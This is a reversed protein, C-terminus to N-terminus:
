CAIKESPVHRASEFFSLIRDMTDQRMQPTEMLVEHEGNEVMVLEGGPWSAMRAQIRKPDVIRENTGLFTLCPLNPAPKRSLELTDKLAEHVWNLSPGGLSLEPHAIVHDQMFTYMDVDNTLTNGEFPEALVYAQTRTGPALGDSTGLVRSAWSIAWAAPRAAPHMIIGWMPGTFVCGQVPLGEMVARLGIAGGMSHAILFYPKPLDLAQAAKLMAAVDHQYDTFEGVHGIQPDDLLRDALGQGRWDMALTAYGGQELAAATHVYKEAYETRGPFLLVTGKEAGKGWLVARVRVGDQTDLWYAAGNPAVEAIDTLFPAPTM